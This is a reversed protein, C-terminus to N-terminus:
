IITCSNRSSTAKPTARERERERLSEQDFHRNERSEVIFQPNKRLGHSEECAYLLETHPIM